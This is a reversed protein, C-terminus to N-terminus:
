IPWIVWKAMTKMMMAVTISIVASVPAEYYSEQAALM